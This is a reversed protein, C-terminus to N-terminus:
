EHNAPEETNTGIDDEPGEVVAAVDREVAGLRERCHAILTAARAVQEALRDVDVTSTELSDLIEELEALAEGYSTPQDADTM